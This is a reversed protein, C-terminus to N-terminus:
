LRLGVAGEVRLADPDHVDVARAEPLHGLRRLAVLVELGVPRGVARLDHEGVEREREAEERLELDDVEVARPLVRDRVPGLVGEIGTRGPRAPEAVSSLLLTTGLSAAAAM